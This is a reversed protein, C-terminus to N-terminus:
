LQIDGDFTSVQGQLQRDVENQSSLNQSHTELPLEMISPNFATAYLNLIPQKKQQSVLECCRM